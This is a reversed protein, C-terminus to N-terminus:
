PYGEGWDRVEECEIARAMSCRGGNSFATVDRCISETWNCDDSDDCYGEISIYRGDHTYVNGVPDFIGFMFMARAEVGAALNERMCAVVANASQEAACDYVTGCDVTVREGLEALRDEVTQTCASLAIYLVHVALPSRFAMGAGEAVPVGTVLGRSKRDRAPLLWTAM